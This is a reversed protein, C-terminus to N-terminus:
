PDATWVPTMKVQQPADPTTGDTPLPLVGLNEAVVIRRVEADIARDLAAEAAQQQAIASEENGGLGEPSLIPNVIPGLLLGTTFPVKSVLGSRTAQFLTAAKAADIPLSPTKADALKKAQDIASNAVGLIGLDPLQDRIAQRRAAANALSEATEPGYFRGLFGGTRKDEDYQQRIRAAQADAAPIGGALNPNVPLPM